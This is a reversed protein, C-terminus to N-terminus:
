PKAPTETESLLWAPHNTRGQMTQSEFPQFVFVDRV